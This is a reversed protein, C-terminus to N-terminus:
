LLLLDTGLGEARESSEGTEERRAKALWTPARVRPVRVAVDRVGPIPPGACAMPGTLIERM